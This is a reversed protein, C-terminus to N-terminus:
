LSLLHWVFACFFFEGGAAHNQKAHDLREYLRVWILVGQAGSPSTNRGLNTSEILKKRGFIIKSFVSFHSRQKPALRISPRSFNM